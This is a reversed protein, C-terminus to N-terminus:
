DLVTFISTTGDPSPAAPDTPAPGAPPRRAELRYMVKDFSSALASQVQGGAALQADLSRAISEAHVRFPLDAVGLWTAAELYAAIADAYPGPATPPTAPTEGAETDTTETSM